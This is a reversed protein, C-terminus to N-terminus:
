KLARKGNKKTAYNRCFKQTELCHSSIVRCLTLICLSKDPPDSCFAIYPTSTVRRQIAMVWPNFFFNSAAASCLTSQQLIKTKVSYPRQQYNLELGFSLRKHDPVQAGEVTLFNQPGIAPQFLQPDISTDRPAVNQARAAAPALLLTTLLPFFTAALRVRPRTPSIM